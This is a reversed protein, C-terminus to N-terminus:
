KSQAGAITEPPEGAAATEPAQERTRETVSETTVSAASEVSEATATQQQEPKTLAAALSGVAGRRDADSAWRQYDRTLLDVFRPLMALMVGKTVLKM